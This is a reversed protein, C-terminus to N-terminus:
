HRHYLRSWINAKCPISQRYVVVFLILPYNCTKRFFKEELINLLLLLHVSRPPGGFSFYQSFLAYSWLYIQPVEKSEGHQKEIMMPPLSGNYFCRLVDHFGEDTQEENDNEDYVVKDNFAAKQEDLTSRDKRGGFTVYISYIPLDVMEASVVYTIFSIWLIGRIFSLLAFNLHESTTPGNLSCMM